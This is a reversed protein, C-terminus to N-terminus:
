AWAVAEMIVSLHCPIRQIMLREIRERYEETGMMKTDNQYTLRPKM